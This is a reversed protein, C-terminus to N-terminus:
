RREGQRHWRSEAADWEWVRGDDGTRTPAPEVPASATPRERQVWQYGDWVWYEGNPGDWTHEATPQPQAMAQQPVALSTALSEPQLVWHFGDWVYLEGRKGRWTYAPDVAHATPTSAPPTSASASTPQHDLEPGHDPEPEVWRQQRPDWVQGTPQQLAPEAGAPSRAARQHWPPELREAAEPHQGGDHPWPQQGPWQGPTPQARQEWEPGGQAGNWGAYGTEVGGVVEVGRAVGVSAAKPASDRRGSARAGWTWVVGDTGQVEDM